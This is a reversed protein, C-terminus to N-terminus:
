RARDGCWVKKLVLCKLSKAQGPKDHKLLAKYANVAPQLYPIGLELGEGSYQKAANTWIRNEIMQSVEDLVKLHGFLPRLEFSRSLGKLSHTYFLPHPLKFGLDILVAITAGMPGRVKSWKNKSRSLYAYPKNWTEYVTKEGYRQVAPHYLSIWTKLQSIPYSVYPDSCHKSRPFHWRFLTTTCAGHSTDGTAVAVNTRHKRNLTPFIGNATGGYSQVPQIKTVAIRKVKRNLKGFYAIRRSRKAAANWREKAKDVRRANGATTQVGIDVGTPDLKIPIGRQHLAATAAKSYKTVPLITSKDSINLGLNRLSQSM